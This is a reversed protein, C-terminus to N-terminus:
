EEEEQSQLQEDFFRRVIAEAERKKNKDVYLRKINIPSEFSSLLLSEEIVDRAKISHKVIVPIGKGSPDDYKGFVPMKHAEKVVKDIWVSSKDFTEVLRNYINNYIVDEDRSNSHTRTEYVCSRLNRELFSIAREKGERAKTKLGELIINDDYKLYKDTPYDKNIEELNLDKIAELLLHDLYRRTKHFYVQIFMFYRAIVFEEFAHIGGREIALQYVNDDENNYITLSSILRDVDYRGYNVGCYYSDRLLYDMKDCDLESDMFGRLLKFERPRYREDSEPNRQGYILWLLEPTIEYDKKKDDGIEFNASLFDDSIQKICNAIETECIIKMTFHEHKIRKGRASDKQEKGFIAEFAHSFPAHGLDHTLAILRLIQRYWKEETECFLERNNRLKFNNVASDFAKSVLYMVGISHGFRTHEAGPYVLYSTALQRINRLRQFPPSDIVKLELDSVEVFGHIPDRIQPM